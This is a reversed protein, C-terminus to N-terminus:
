PLVDLEDKHFVNKCGRCMVNDKNPDAKHAMVNGEQTHNM